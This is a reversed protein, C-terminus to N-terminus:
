FRFNLRAIGEVDFPRPSTVPIVVAAGLQFGGMLDVQVGGTFNIITDLPLPAGIQDGNKLPTDIHVEVMPSIARILDNPGGRYAVYGLGIDNFLYTVDRSDTPLAISSFGQVFFNGFVVRGSVFPQIVTSHIKQDQLSDFGLSIPSSPATVVLGASLVNGTTANNIFAYKLILSVDGIDGIGNDNDRGPLTLFPLRVGISANGDLFTKEFGFTERNITGKTGGGLDVNNFYNYNFYVRDIPRPSENEAIKFAGRFPNAPTDILILDGFMPVDPFLYPVPAPAKLPIDAAWGGGSTLAAFAAGLFLSGIRGLQMGM